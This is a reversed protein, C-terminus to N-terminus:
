GAELLSSMAQRGSLWADEIRAGTLWDGALAIRRDTSIRAEDTAAPTTVRAYRWRHAASYGPTGLALGSQARYASLLAAAM